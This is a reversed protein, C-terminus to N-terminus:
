QGVRPGKGNKSDRWGRRLTHAEGLLRRLAEPLPNPTPIGPMDLALSLATKETFQTVM